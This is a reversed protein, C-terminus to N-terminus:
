AYRHHYKQMASDPKVAELVEYRLRNRALNVTPGRIETFNRALSAIPSKELKHNSRIM